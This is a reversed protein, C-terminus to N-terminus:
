LSPQGPDSRSQQEQGPTPVRRQRPCFTAHVHGRAARFGHGPGLFGGAPDDASPKRSSPRGLVKGGRGHSLRRPLEVAGEGHKGPWEFTSLFTVTGRCSDPLEPVQARLLVPLPRLHPKPIAEMDHWFRGETPHLVANGKKSSERAISLDVSALSKAADLSGVAAEM